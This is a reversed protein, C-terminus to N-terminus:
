PTGVLLAVSFVEGRIDPRRAVLGETEQEYEATLQALRDRDKALRGQRAPLIRQNQPTPSALAGAIFEEEDTIRVQIREARSKYVREARRLRRERIDEAKTLMDTRYELLTTQFRTRSLQAAREVFSWNVEAQTPEEGIPISTVKSEMVDLDPTIIHRVLTAEPVVLETRLRWIVEVSIGVPADASSRVGIRSDLTALEHVIKDVLPHGCAFFPVEDMRLADQPHFVGHHVQGGAALKAALKPSLSVQDGGTAHPGLSGGLYQLGLAVVDRLQLNTALTPQELLDRAQDKRFSARDLVFDAMTEELLRAKAVKKQVEEGLSTFRSQLESLPTNLAIDQLEEELEGLIPDLNGVSEEFIRIRDQLVGVIQEELTGRYVLNFIDVVHTQGIRDLRGIRQEVKMPNWPLDYNILVHAFQLNRGEGGAETSILISTSERFERIADEKEEAGMRGNFITCVYGNAQLTERLFLQTEVFQTFIVAKQIGPANVERLIKLLQFAKSDRIDFLREVLEGLLAIEAEISARELEATMMDLQELAESAEAADLLEEPVSPDPKARAVDGLRGRLKVMRRQLSIRLAQSSSTLMRQYNVMMFGVANSRSGGVAGAYSQIYDTALLYVEREEPTQDVVVKTPNRKAGIGLEAKRNRVMLDATPHAEIIRDMVSDRKDSDMLFDPSAIGLDGLLEGHQAWAEQREITSKAPWESVSRMADNLEPIRRREREYAQYGSFLGPEVLDILSYLEMAELQVPTASLLLLGPTQDKLEEALRYAQTARSRTRRVRHAEDFIVLDWPAALIQEQRKKGAAFPLSCIISDRALFPNAGGRGFHKAADGDIIDFSENFKSALEVQWQQKLSAPAVILVRDALGRARLEKIVLGAEITKGLGVEDALIMRPVLKRAVVRHAVFAQHLQPELRANSLGAGPDYEYSHQILRALLRLRAAAPDDIQGTLLLGLDDTPSEAVDDGSLIQTATGFAVELNDGQYGLVVGREGTMRHIVRSGVTFTM